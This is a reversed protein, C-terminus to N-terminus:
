FWTLMDPQPFLASSRVADTEDGGSMSEEWATLADALSVLVDLAESRRRRGYWISFLHTMRLVVQAILSYAEVNRIHQPPAAPVPVIGFM